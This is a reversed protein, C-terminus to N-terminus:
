KLLSDVEDNEEEGDMKSDFAAKEEETMEQPKFIRFVVGFVLFKLATFILLILLAILFTKGM